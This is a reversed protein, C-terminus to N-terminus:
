AISFPELHKPNSKIKILMKQSIKKGIRKRSVKKKDEMAHNKDHM